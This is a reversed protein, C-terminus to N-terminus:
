SPPNEVMKRLAACEQHFNMDELAAAAILLVSSPSNFAEALLMGMGGIRAMAPDKLSEPHYSRCARKWAM